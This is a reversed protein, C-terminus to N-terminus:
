LTYAYTEVTEQRGFSVKQEANICTWGMARYLACAEAHSKHTWLRIRKYGVSEAFCILKSVMQFGLGKGRAEEVLFFLRLQATEDDIRTCFISGLPRHKYEAIWGRECTPDHNMLFDDLIGAVLAEFSDDFGHRDMYIAKHQALVWDRDQQSIQRIATADMVHVFAFGAQM